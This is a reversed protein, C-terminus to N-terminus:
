VIPGLGDGLRREIAALREALRREVASPEPAHPEAAPSPHSSEPREFIASVMQPMKPFLAERMEDTMALSQYIPTTEDTSTTPPADVEEAATAPAFLSGPRAPQPDAPKKALISALSKFM